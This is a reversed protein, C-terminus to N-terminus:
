FWFLVMGVEGGEVNLVDIGVNVFVYGICYCVIIVVFYVCVM